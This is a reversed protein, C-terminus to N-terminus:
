HDIRLIPKFIETQLQNEIDLFSLSNELDFGSSETRTLKALTAGTKLVLGLDRAIMAAALIANARDWEGSEAAMAAAIRMAALNEPWRAM